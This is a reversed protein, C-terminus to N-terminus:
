YKDKISEGQYFALLEEKTLCQNKIASIIQTDM